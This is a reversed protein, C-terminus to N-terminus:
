LSGCDFCLMNSALTINGFVCYVVSYMVKGKEVSFVIM